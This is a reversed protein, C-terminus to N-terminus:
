PGNMAVSRNFRHSLSEADRREDLLEARRRLQALDQALAQFNTKLDDLERIAAPSAPRPIDPTRVLSPDAVAPPPGPKPSPRRAVITAGIGLALVVAAAVGGALLAPRYRPLRAVSPRPETSISTWLARQAASLPEVISLECAIRRLRAAEAACSTCRAAHRRALWRGLVGGTALLNVAHDCRM